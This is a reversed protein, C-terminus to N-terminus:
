AKLLSRLPVITLVPFRPTPIPFFRLRIPPVTMLVPVNVVFLPLTVTRAIPPPITCTDSVLPSNLKSNGSPLSVPILAVALGNDNGARRVPLPMGSACPMVRVLPSTYRLLVPATIGVVGPLTVMAPLMLVAVRPFLPLTIIPPLSFIVIALDNSGFLLLVILKSAGVISRM